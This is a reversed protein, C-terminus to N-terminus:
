KTRSHLAFYAFVRPHDNDATVAHQRLANSEMTLLATLGPATNRALVDLEEPKIRFFSCGPCEDGREFAYFTSLFFQYIQLGSRKKERLFAFHHRTGSRERRGGFRLDM